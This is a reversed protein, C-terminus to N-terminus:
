TMVAKTTMFKLMYFTAYTLKYKEKEQSMARQKYLLSSLTYKVGYFSIETNILLFLKFKSIAISMEKQYKLLHATHKQKVKLFSQQCLFTSSSPSFHVPLTYTKAKAHTQEIVATTINIEEM